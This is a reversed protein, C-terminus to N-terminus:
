QVEFGHMLRSESAVSKLDANNWTRPLVTEDMSRLKCAGDGLAETVEYSGEWKPGLKGGDVAHSTDNNRYVFDGPKFAVDRVRGNYYNTMKLKAIAERIAARECRQKLLNLNLRLEEDNYVVDVAATRYAPMGIEVPIVALEQKGRRPPGQNRGWARTQEKIEGPLGFRCVINDWVFKKVQSTREPFSWGHQNKVQLIAVSDHDPNSAAPPKKNRSSTNSLQQMYTDHRECGLADNALLIRTTHSQGGSLLSSPIVMTGRTHEVDTWRGRGLNDGGKRTYIKRQTNRGLGPKQGKRFIQDHKGRQRRIDPDQQTEVVSAVPPSEDSVEALFDALVHGKVSTRPRYMINHEGLMVTWIQLRGAMNPRSMIQKIPQDTIVAILHAQFYRRLRKATFVLSMVLKEMPNKTRPWDVGGKTQTSGVPTIGVLAAKTAQFRTRSLFINLSALKENLIQVEKIIRPSPLQLVAEIKDPCPKIGESTVMYGLFMGEMIDRLMEAETYSKVVLENVYVEINQGIQSDFAKDLLRQYTASANKLGFPMKTYCYVGQGTHFTTKEEDSKALEKPVASSTIVTAYETPILITSRITIIGGDVPLKLMRHSDHFEDMSKCFSRGRRNNGLAEPRLRNFCHEYLIEMLSGGDMYMRHIMHRGTEAEIVLPGEAGSSTALPLFTIEREMFDEITEGDKQQINHIEVLDKVYKKQQMFYALFAAKLDKYSDISKPPLEDFWVRVAGLRDLMHRDNYRLRDQVKLREPRATLTRASSHRSGERTRRERSGEGFDFRAHVEKRKDHHVKDM